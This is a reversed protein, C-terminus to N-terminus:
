TLGWPIEGSTIVKRLNRKLRSCNYVVDFLYALFFSGLWVFLFLWGAAGVSAVMGAFLGACGTVLYYNAQQAKLLFGGNNMERIIPYRFRPILLVFMCPKYWFNLDTLYNHLILPSIKHDERLEAYFDPVLMDIDRNQLEEYVVELAMETFHSQREVIAVLDETSMNSYYKELSERTVM